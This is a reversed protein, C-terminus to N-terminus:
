GRLILGLNWSDKNRIYCILEFKILCMFINFFSSWTKSFVTRVCLRRTKQRICHNSTRRRDKDYSQAKKRLVDVLALFLNGLDVIDELTELSLHHFSSLIQNSHYISHVVFKSLLKAHWFSAFYALNAM